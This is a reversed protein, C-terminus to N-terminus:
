SPKKPSGVTVWRRGKGRAGFNARAAEAEMAPQALDLMEDLAARRTAQMEQRVRLVEPEPIRRHGGQTKTVGKFVGADCLSAVYPRSVNLLEAVETTSLAKPLPQAVTTVAQSGHARSGQVFPGVRLILAGERTLDPYIDLSLKGRASEDLVPEFHRVLGKAELARLLEATMTRLSTQAESVGSAERASVAVREPTEMVCGPAAITGELAWQVQRAIQDLQGTHVAEKFM